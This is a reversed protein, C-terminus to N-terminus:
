SEIEFGKKMQTKLFITLNKLALGIKWADRNRPEVYNSITRFQLFPIGAKTCALFVAAGEMSEVQIGSWRDTLQAISGQNGHVTNVTVGTAKRAGTTSKQPNKITNYLAKEEDLAFGLAELDLFHDHDEAGMEPFCDATVEVLDGLHLSKDIAGAIGCNIVLDYSFLALQQGLKFATNVMGIGTHVLVWRRTDDEHVLGEPAQQWDLEARIGLSEGETAFVLLTTKM